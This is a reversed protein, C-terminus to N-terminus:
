LSFSFLRQNLKAEIKSRNSLLESQFACFYVSFFPPSFFVLSILIVVHFFRNIIWIAQKYHLSCFCKWSTKILFIYCVSHQVKFIYMYTNKDGSELWRCPLVIVPPKRPWVEVRWWSRHHSPFTLYLVSKIWCM